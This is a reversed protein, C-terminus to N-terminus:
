DSGSGSNSNDEKETLPERVWTRAVSGATLPEELPSTLLQEITEGSMEYWLPRRAYQVWNSQLAKKVTRFNTCLMRAIITAGDPCGNTLGLNHPSCSRGVLKTQYTRDPHIEDISGHVLWIVMQGSFKAAAHAIQVELIELDQRQRALQRRLDHLLTMAETASTIEDM